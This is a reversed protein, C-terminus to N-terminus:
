SIDSNGIIEITPKRIPPSRLRHHRNTDTPTPQHRRKDTVPLKRVQHRHVTGAASTLAMHIATQGTTGLIPAHYDPKHPDDRPASQPLEYLRQGSMLVLRRNLCRQIGPEVLHLLRSPPVRRFYLPGVCGRADDSGIANHEVHLAIGITQDHRDIEILADHPDLPDTCM